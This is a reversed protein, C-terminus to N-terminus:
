LQDLKSDLKEKAKDTVHLYIKKTIDSSDHGVRNQIVYLPVGLEALKSIHTHRFIHSSVPKDIGLDDKAKRLFRNFSSPQIVSGTSTQFIFNGNDYNLSKLKEYITVGMSPLTIERMGAATKTQDSKYQKSIAINKYELTGTVSVIYKDNLVIIDSWDLALAEGIRMGTLYLWEILLAYRLNKKYSYDLLAKLEDKELFKDKIKPATTKQKWSIKAENVPNSLIYNKTTAYHLMSGLKSKVIQVYKNSLNHKDDYLLRELTNSILAPTMNSVLVDPPLVELLKKVISKTSDFTSNRVQKKYIELWEYALKDFTVGKVLEETPAEALKAQIKRNLILQAEKQAQRSKSSLSISLVKYKETYPNKYREFYRYNGNKEQRFWM